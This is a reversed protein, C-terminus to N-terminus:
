LPHPGGSQAACTSQQLLQHLQHDNPDTGAQKSTFRKAYYRERKLIGWFGEMSGGGICVIAKKGELTKLAEMAGKGHYVDRPLTFRAM